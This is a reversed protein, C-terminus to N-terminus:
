GPGASQELKEDRRVGIKFGKVGSNFRIGDDYQGPASAHEHGQVALTRPRSPSKALKTMPSSARTIKESKDPNYEGPGATM